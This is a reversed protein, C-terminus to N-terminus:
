KKKGTKKGNKKNSPLWKGGKIQGKIKKKGNGASYLSRKVIRKRL